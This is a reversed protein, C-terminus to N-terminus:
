EYRLAEVPHLRSARRAPLVSALVAITMAGLAVWFVMMPNVATPIEPFYYIKEDFVKRGTAWTIWEEITNIYRVFLLGLTVGVGSGVIGLALGYSLFISM